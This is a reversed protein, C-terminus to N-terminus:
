ALRCALAQERGASAVCSALFRIVPLYPRGVTTGCPLLAAKGDAEIRSALAHLRTLVQGRLDRGSSTILQHLSQPSLQEDSTDAFPHSQLRQDKEFDHPASTSLLDMVQQRNIKKAIKVFCIIKNVALSAESPGDTMRTPEHSDIAVEISNLSPSTHSQKYKSDITNGNEVVENEQYEVEKQTCFVFRRCSGSSFRLRKREFCQQKRIPQKAGFVAGLVAMKRGIILDSDSCDTSSRPDIRQLM